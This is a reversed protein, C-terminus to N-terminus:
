LVLWSSVQKRISQSFGDMHTSIFRVTDGQVSVDASEWGGLLTITSGFFTFSFNNVYDQSQVNSISMDGNTLDSSRVLIASRDKLEVNMLGCSFLGPSHLDFNNRTVVVTYSLGKSSLADLLIHLYDLNIASSTPCTSSIPM